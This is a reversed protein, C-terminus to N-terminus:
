LWILSRGGHVAGLDGGWSTSELSVRLTREMAVDVWVVVSPYKEIKQSDQLKESCPSNGWGEKPRM